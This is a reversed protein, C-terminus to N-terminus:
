EVRLEVRVRTGLPPLRDSAIWEPAAVNAEHSFVHEWALLETGFTALGILTGDADAAYAPAGAREKSGAFVWGVGPHVRSLPERTAANLVLDRPDFAPEGAIPHEFRLTVVIKPGTPPTSTLTAGDWAWSGPAGPEIGLMLLAAHVHSPKADTVVLAEHEKTDRPCVIVELFVEADRKGSVDLAVEGMVEVIRAARDIKIHPFVQRRPEPPPPPAQGPPPDTKPPQPGPPMGVGASASLLAAVGLAVGARALTRRDPNRM